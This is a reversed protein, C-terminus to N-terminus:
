VAVRVRDVTMKSDHRNLFGENHSRCKGCGRIHLTLCALHIDKGCWGVTYGKTEISIIGERCQPCNM